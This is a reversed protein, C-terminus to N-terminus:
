KKQRQQEAQLLANVIPVMQDILQHQANHRNYMSCGQAGIAGMTLASAFLLAVGILRFRDM